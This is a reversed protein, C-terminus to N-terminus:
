TIDGDVDTIITSAAREAQAKESIKVTQVVYRRILEKLWQNDTYVPTGNNDVENNPYLYLMADIIRPVATNDITFTITAM